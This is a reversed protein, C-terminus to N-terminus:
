LNVGVLRGAVPPLIGSLAVAKSIADRLRGPSYMLVASMTEGADTDVLIVAYGATPQGLDARVDRRIVWSEIGDEANVFSAVLSRPREIVSGSM